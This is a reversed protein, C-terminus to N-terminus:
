GGIFFIVHLSINVRPNDVIWRNQKEIGLVDLSAELEKARIAGLGDADGTSLCFIFVQSPGRWGGSDDPNHHVGHPSKNALALVTPAFFLVEDDPHAILLLVRWPQDSA